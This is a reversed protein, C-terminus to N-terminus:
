NFPNLDHLVQAATRGTHVIPVASMGVRLLHHPDSTQDILIKVPIRQVVKVYNGTANEPPLLSFAAGTGAMISDVTGKFTHGPYSDVTFSVKQGPHIHTLQSEKYNAVLWAEALPVVAMLAQGPQITAGVEVGKRTVYGDAPALIQTYDLKLRAESLQAQRQRLRAKGGPGANLGAIASARKLQEEAERVQAEAVKQGTLLQDLQERPIVERAFLAEGRKLDIVAQALRVQASQLGARAAAVQSADGATENLAIGVAAEAQEEAIRYDTPDLEVLPQGKQVLQNDNVLVKTVTGPVRASILHINSEIFADDTSINSRSNIIWHMGLTIGILGLLMILMAAKRQPSLRLRATTEQQPEVPSELAPPAAPTTIEDPM